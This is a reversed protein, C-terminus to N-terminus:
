TETNAKNVSLFVFNLFVFCFFFSIKSLFFFFTFGTTKQPDLIGLLGGRGKVSLYSEVRELISEFPVHKKANVAIKACRNGTFRVSPWCGRQILIDRIRDNSNMEQERLVAKALDFPLCDILDRLEIFPKSSDSIPFPSPTNPPKEMANKGTTFGQIMSQIGGPQSIAMGAMMKMMEEAEAKTQSDESGAESGSEDSEHVRPTFSVSGLHLASTRNM